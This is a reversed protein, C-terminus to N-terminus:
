LSFPRYDSFPHVEVPSGLLLTGFNNVSSNLYHTIRQALNSNLTPLNKTLVSFSSTSQAVAFQSTLGFAGITAAVNVFSPLLKPLLTIADPLVDNVVLIVM